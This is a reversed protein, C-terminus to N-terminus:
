YFSTIFNITLAMLQISSKLYLFYFVYNCVDMYNTIPEEPLEDYSSIKWRNSAAKMSNRLDEITRSGTKIRNLSIRIYLHCWYILISNKVDFEINM